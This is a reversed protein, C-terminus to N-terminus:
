PTDRRAWSIFCQEFAKVSLAGFVRAFTDPSAIGNEYPLQTRLWALQTRAWLTHEDGLGGRRVVGHEIGRVPNGTVSLSLYPLASGAFRGIRGHDLGDRTGAFFL